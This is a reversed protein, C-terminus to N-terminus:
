ESYKYYMHSLMFYIKFIASAYLRILNTTQPSSLSLSSCSCSRCSRQLPVKYSILSLPSGALASSHQPSTSWPKSPFELQLIRSKNSRDHAKSHVGSLIRSCYELDHLPWPHTSSPKLWPDSIHSQTLCINKLKNINKIHPQATTPLNSSSEQNASRPLHASQVVMLM